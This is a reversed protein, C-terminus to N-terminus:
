FILGDRKAMMKGYSTGAARAEVCVEVLTQKKQASAKKKERWVSKLEAQHSRKSAKRCEDSCLLRRYDPALFEKGCQTCIKKYQKPLEPIPPIELKEDQYAFAVGSCRTKTARAKARWYRGKNLVKAAEYRCEESCYKGSRNSTFRKGCIVCFADAM